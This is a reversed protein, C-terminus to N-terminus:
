AVAGYHIPIKPKTHVKDLLVDEPPSLTPPRPYIPGRGPMDWDLKIGAVKFDNAILRILNVLYPSPPADLVGVLGCLLQGDDELQAGSVALLLWGEASTVRSINPCHVDIPRHAEKRILQSLVTFRCLLADSQGESFQTLFRDYIPTEQCGRVARSRFGLLFLAEAKQSPSLRLPQIIERNMHTLAM